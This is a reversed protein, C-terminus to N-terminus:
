VKTDPAVSVTNGIKAARAPAQVRLGLYFLVGVVFYAATIYPFINYPRAPVPYVQGGLVFAMLGAGLVSVLVHHPRLKGQRHLWAAAAISVLLYAILFGYGELTGLYGNVDAVPTRLVVFTFPVLWTPVALVALAVYPTRFRPQVRGLSAPLIGDRAMTFIIRAGTNLMGIVAAFIGLTLGLDILRGLLPFGVIQSLTNLPAPSQAFSQGSGEFGLTEVYAMFVFYVGVLATSSFIALPITRYPNKAESGLVACGEFGAFMGAALVLGERVGTPSVGRLGLQALDPRFGHKALIIVGLLLLMTVSVAEVVLAVWASLKVDRFALLFALTLVVLYTLAHVLGTEPLNFVRDAYIEILVVAAPAGIVYAMLIGWGTMVGGFPGLGAAAYTYLSGTSAIQRAFTVITMAVFISGIGAILISLWTGNGATAFILAPAVAAAPSPGITAVSQALVAPFSLYNTRLGPAPRSAPAPQIEM